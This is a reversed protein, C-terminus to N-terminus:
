QLSILMPQKFKNSIPKNSINTEIEKEHTIHAKEKRNTNNSWKDVGKTQRHSVPKINKSSM